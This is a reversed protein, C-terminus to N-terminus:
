IKIIYGFARADVLFIGFFFRASNMLSKLSKFFTLSKLLKAIAPDKNSIM